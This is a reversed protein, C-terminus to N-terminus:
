HFGEVGDNYAAGGGHPELYDCCFSRVPPYVTNPILVCDGPKLFTLM